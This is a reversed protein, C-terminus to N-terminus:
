RKPTFTQVPGRCLYGPDFMEGTLESVICSDGPKGDPKPVGARLLFRYAFPGVMGSPLRIKRKIQFERSARDWEIAGSEELQLLGVPAPLVEYAVAPKLAVVSAPDITVVGGPYIARFRDALDHNGPDVTANAGRITVTGSPKRFFITAPAEAPVPPLSASPLAVQTIANRVAVAIPEKGTAKRLAAIVLAADSSPYSEFLRVCTARAQLFSLKDAAVGTAGASPAGADETAGITRYATLVVRELRETHGTFRWITPEYSTAVVYLPTEGPEIDVAVTTATDDLSGIAATSIAGGHYSSVLVLQAQDSPKPFPCRAAYAAEEERQRKAEAAARDQASWATQAKTMEASSVTGDGDTDLAKAIDRVIEAFDDRSIPTEVPRGRYLNLQAALSQNEPTRPITAVAKATAEAITIRGDNDTDAAMVTRVRREDQRAAADGRAQSIVVARAEAETVAGDGDLDYALLEGIARATTSARYVRAFLASDAPTMQGDGDVDATTFMEGVRAMQKETTPYQRLLSVTFEPPRPPPSAEEAMAPLALHPWLLALSALHLRM